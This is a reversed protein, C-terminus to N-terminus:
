GEKRGRRKKFTPVFGDAMRQQMAARGTLRRNKAITADRQRAITATVTPPLVMRVTEENGIREIFVWDGVDKQRVTQVIFTETGGIGLSPVERIVTEASKVCDNLGLFEGLRRDFNSLQSLDFKDGSM